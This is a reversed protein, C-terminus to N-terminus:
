GVPLLRRRHSVHVECDRLIVECFPHRRVAAGGGAGDKDPEIFDGQIPNEEKERRARRFYDGREDTQSVACVVPSSKARASDAVGDESIGHLM